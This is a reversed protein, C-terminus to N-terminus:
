PFHADNGCKAQRVVFLSVCEFRMCVCVHMCACGQTKIDALALRLKVTVKSLAVM